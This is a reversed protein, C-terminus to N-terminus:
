QQDESLEKIRWLAMSWTADSWEYYKETIEQYVSLLTKDEAESLKYSEISGKWENAEEGEFVEENNQLVGQHEFTIEDYPKFVSINSVLGEGTPTKFLIKGGEKWDTQFHSGECFESTWIRYPKDETLVEWIKEKTANILVEKKIEVKKM